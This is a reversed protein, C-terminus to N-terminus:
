RENEEVKKLCKIEECKLNWCAPVSLRGRGFGAVGFPEALTSHACGFTFNAVSVPPLSLSDSYLRAVLSGDGYAYYFPPCPYSSTNYDRTEIFPLLSRRLLFPLLLLRHHPLFTMQAMKTENDVEEEKEKIMAPDVTFKIAEGAARSRLYYMGTKLGASAMAPGGGGMTPIVTDNGSSWRRVESQSVRRRSSGLAAPLNVPFDKPSRQIKNEPIHNM